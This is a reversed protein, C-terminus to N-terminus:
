GQGHSGRMCEHSILGDDGTERHDHCERCDALGPVASAGPVDRGPRQDPGFEACDMHGCPRWPCPDDANFDEHAVATALDNVRM